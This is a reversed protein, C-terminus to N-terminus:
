FLKQKEDKEIEKIELKEIIPNIEFAEEPEFHYDPQGVPIKETHAQNYRLDKYCRNCVDKSEFYASAKNPCYACKVM